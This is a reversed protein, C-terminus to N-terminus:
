DISLGILILRLRYLIQILCVGAGQALCSVHPRHIVKHSNQLLIMFSPRVSWRSVKQFVFSRGAFAARGWEGHRDHTFTMIKFVFYISISHFPYTLLGSSKEVCFSKFFAM